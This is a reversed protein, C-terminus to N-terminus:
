FKISFNSGILLLFMANLEVSALDGLTPIVVETLIDTESDVKLQATASNAMIDVVSGVCEASAFLMSLKLSLNDLIFMTMEYTNEGLALRDEESGDLAFGSRIKIEYEGVNKGLSEMNFTRMGQLEKNKLEDLLEKELEYGSPRM